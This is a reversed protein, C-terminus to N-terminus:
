YDVDQVTKGVGKAFGLEFSRKQIVGIMFPIMLLGMVLVALWLLQTHQQAERKSAM